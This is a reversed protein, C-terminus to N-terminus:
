NKTNEFKKRNKYITDYISLELLKSFVKNEIEM